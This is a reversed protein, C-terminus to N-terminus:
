VICFLSGRTFERGSIHPLLWFEVVLLPLPAMYDPYRDLNSYHKTHRNGPKFIPFTLVSVAASLYVCMCIYM